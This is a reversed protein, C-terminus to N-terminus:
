KDQTTKSTTDHAAKEEPDPTEKSMAFSDSTAFESFSLFDGVNVGKLVARSHVLPIALEKFSSVDITVSVRREIQCFFLTKRVNYLKQFWQHIVRIRFQIIRDPSIFVFVKFLFM